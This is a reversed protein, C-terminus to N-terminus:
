SYAITTIDLFCQQFTLWLKNAGRFGVTFLKREPLIPITFKANSRNNEM